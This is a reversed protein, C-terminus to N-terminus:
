EPQAQRLLTGAQNDLMARMRHGKALYTQSLESQGAKARIGGCVEYAIAFNYLIDFDDVTTVPTANLLSSIAQDPAVNLAHDCLTSAAQYEGKAELQQIRPWYFIEFPEIYDDARITELHAAPWNSSSLTLVAIAIAAACLWVYRKYKILSFIKVTGLAAFPILAIVLPLKLRSLSLFFTLFFLNTIILAYLPWCKKWRRASLAVGILGLPMIYTFGLPLVKLAPVHLKTYYFNENNPIEFWSWLYSFKKLTFIIYAGLSGHTDITASITPLIKFNSRHAVDAVTVLLEDTFNDGGMPPYNVVNHMAFVIAGESSLGLFPLGCAVNRYFLPTLILLMGTIFLALLPVKTKALPKGPQMVFRGLLLLVILVLLSSKLLLALGSALGLLFYILYAKQSEAKQTLYILLFSVFLLFSERLLFLEYFVAMPYAVAFVMAVAAVTRGLSRKTVLYLLVLTALGLLQQFILIARHDNSIFSFFLAISYPYFPDQYFSAPKMWQSWIVAAQEHSLAGTSPNRGLHREAYTEALRVQWGHLPAQINASLYDGDSIAHAWSDFYHMDTEPWLHLWVTPGSNAQNFAAIRVTAAFLMALLLVATLKTTHRTLKM